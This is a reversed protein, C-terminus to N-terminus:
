LIIYKNVMIVIRGETIVNQIARSIIDAKNRFIICRLITIGKVMKRQRIEWFLAPNKYRAASAEFRSSIQHKDVECTQLAFMVAFRVTCTCHRFYILSM